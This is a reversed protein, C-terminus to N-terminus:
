RLTTLPAAWEAEFKPWAPAGGEPVILVPAQVHEFARRTRRDELTSAPTVILEVDGGAREPGHAFEDPRMVSYWDHLAGAASVAVRESEPESSHSVLLVVRHSISIRRAIRRAAAPSVALLPHPLARALRRLRQADGSWPMGIALVWDHEALTGRPGEGIRASDEPVPIPAWSVELGEALRLSVRECARAELSGDDLTLIYPVDTLAGGRSRSRQSRRPLGRAHGVWLRHVARGRAAVARRLAPM